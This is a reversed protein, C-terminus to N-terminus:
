VVNTTRGWHGVTPVRLSSRDLEDAVRRHSDARRLQGAAALRSAITREFWGTREITELAEIPRVLARGQDIIDATRESDLEADTGM